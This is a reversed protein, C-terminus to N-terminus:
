SFKPPQWISTLFGSPYFSSNYTHLKSSILPIHKNPFITNNPINISVSCCSCVCFPTCTDDGCNNSHKDHSSVHQHEIDFFHNAVELIGVGEGDSCPILSLALM